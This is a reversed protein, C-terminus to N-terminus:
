ITPLKKNKIAMGFGLGMAIEAVTWGSEICCPGWGVDHPMGYIEMRKLDLCRSWAGDITKDQSVIQSNAFFKCIDEWKNLFTVDDTVYYAYAFGLPLWNLSYLLEAIENGNDALMSSETGSTRSRFATYGPDM